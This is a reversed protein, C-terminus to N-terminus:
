LLGNKQDDLIYQCAEDASMENDENMEITPLGADISVLQVSVRRTVMNKASITITGKGYHTNFHVRRM